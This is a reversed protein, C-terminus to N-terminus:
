GEQFEKLYYAKKLSKEEQYTEEVEKALSDDKGAQKLLDRLTSVVEAVKADCEKELATLEEVKGYVVATRNEPTHEGAVYEDIASQVIAELQAVYTAQLVYMKAIQQRIQQDITNSTSSAAPKSTGSPTSPTSTPTSTAAASDGTDTSGDPTDETPAPSATEGALLKEAAEDATLSGDMLAALEDESFAYDSIDYDKMAKTLTKSNEELRSSITDGDMTMMYRAAKINNWQWAALAAGAVILVGVVGIAIKVGKKM